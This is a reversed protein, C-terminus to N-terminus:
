FCNYDMYICTHLMTASCPSVSPVSVCEWGVLGARLMTAPCPSVSPFSVCEWGVLGARLMTAPCPSM